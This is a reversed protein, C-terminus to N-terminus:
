EAEDEIIRRMTWAWNLKTTVDDWFGSRIYDTNSREWGDADPDDEAPYPSLPWLSSAWETTENKVTAECKVTKRHRTEVDMDEEERRRKGGDDAAARSECEEERKIELPFNLIAKSGRMQYAAKDYAKAAEVATNFTGLWVRSGRRKPDRIEAAYKGWPRQRVGRYHRKEEEEVVVSRPQTSSALELWELKKVATPVEIRLSPKARPTTMTLDIVPPIFQNHEPVVSEDFSSFDIGNPEFNLFYDFISLSSDCTSSQQSQEQSGHDSESSSVSSTLCSLTRNDLEPLQTPSFEGLLHMKIRQIASVEAPNAM